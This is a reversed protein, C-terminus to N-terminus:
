LLDTLDVSEGLHSIGEPNEILEINMEGSSSDFSHIKFVEKKFSIKMGKKGNNEWSTVKFMSHWNDDDDDGEEAEKELLIKVIETHGEQRAFKLATIEDDDEANVDAGKELLIKVTETHGAQSAIMLATLGLDDRSEIDAANELLIKVIEVQGKHSAIMLATWGFNNRTAIDAGKELLIKVIEAQGHKSALMLATRGNATQMNVDIGSKIILKATAIDGQEIATTLKIFEKHNRNKINMKISGTTFIKSNNLAVNSHRKDSTLSKKM